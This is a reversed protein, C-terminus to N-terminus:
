NPVFNRKILFIVLVAADLDAQSYKKVGITKNNAGAAESSDELISSEAGIVGSDVGSSNTNNGSENHDVGNIEEDM